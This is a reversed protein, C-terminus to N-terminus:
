SVASRRTWRGSTFPFNISATAKIPPMAKSLRAAEAVLRAADEPLMFRQAVLRATAAKVADAYAGPTPYREALSLRPDGIQEREAQTAAFPIFSGSFSCFGGGFWDGRFQNWGTYTGIPVQLYISRIGGLDNGDRDVQPVLINYSGSGTRPPETTMVGSIDAADYSPGYDLPHLRNVLGTFRVAPRQVGGYTNAPIAPFAVDDPPVLTHDAIRPMASPPPLRGNQVWETLDTLLARMTWTHPNPNPQQVCAGFPAKVPLPLGPPAHQTSVMIYTRVNPPEPADKLGLPDTLGLSQRGEWLELATAAHILKPCTSSALCGDLVSQTRGTIPDHERAYTYPFDYAPYQHDIQEGWARGPQAFRLSLPLLGGGIHPLAGDYVQRGSEDQNFGLHLFTRIMRGDQSTGMVIAKVHPGHVVPNATGATDRVSRKLFSGLDRTVAFGLGMVSPDRARYILEYLNGPQFGAPYCIQKDGVTAPAGAPCSGFNWATNPIPMRPANEQGRVSLTPLFGDPFAARNDTSATPYSDTIMGTFWGSSLNLTTAPATVSLDSRVLGTVPSGDHNRAAPVQFTMRGDGPLVDSQWAVWILTTGQRQLWGDGADALRNVDAISGKVDANFLSLAGKNGRNPLNFLLIGNSKASDAPRLIEVDATYDVMGRANRPALALDQIRANAPAKPDVEGHARIVVHEFAGRDGFSAGGFAPEVKLIELRVIEARAPAAIVGLALLAMAAAKLRGQRHPKLRAGPDDM